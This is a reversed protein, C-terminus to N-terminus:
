INIILYNFVKDWDEFGKQGFHIHVGKFEGAGNKTRDDVLYDGICLDKRHTLILRKNAWEGFHNMIWRRKGTYSEPVDWVPTSLFYVDFDEKLKNVTEIAKPIPQLFEFMHPNKKMINDVEKQRDKLNLNPDISLVFKEFDAVVGDM